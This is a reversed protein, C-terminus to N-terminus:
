PAQVLAVDSNQKGPRLRVLLRGIWRSGRWLGRLVVWLCILAGVAYVGGLGIWYWGNWSYHQEPLLNARDRVLLWGGVLVALVLALGMHLAVGAWQGRRLRPILRAFFAMNPLGLLGAFILLLLGSLLFRWAGLRRVDPELSRGYALFWLKVTVALALAFWLWPLLGLWWSRHRLAARLLVWPVVCLSASLWLWALWITGWPAFALVQVGGASNWPLDRIQRSDEEAPPQWLAGPAPQDAARDAPVAKFCHTRLHEDYVVHPLENARGAPLVVRPEGLGVCHWAAKGTSATLGYVVAGARAVVTAPQNPRVPWLDMLEGDAAPLPWKWVVTALDDRVARLGDEAFYLLGDVGKAEPDQKWVQCLVQDLPVAARGNIPAPRPKQAAAFRVAQRRLEQAGPGLLILHAGREDHYTWVVVAQRKGERNIVLPIPNSDDGTLRAMARGFAPDVPARWSGKTRGALDLVLVEALAQGPGGGQGEVTHWLVIDPRGGRELDALAVFVPDNPREAPRPVAPLSWLVAGTRGDLACLEPDKGPRLAPVLVDAVGDGNVDLFVPHVPPHRANNSRDLIVNQPYAGLEGLETRWLSKGNHGSLLVVLTRVRHAKGDFVERIGAEDDTFGGLLIQAKGDRHLDQCALVPFGGHNKLRVDATWLLGGTRGSIAQLPSNQDNEVRIPHLSLVDPIGDGDLDGLPLPFARSRAPENLQGPRDYHWLPRGDRGSIATTRLMRQDSLSEHQSLLFPYGEGTDQAAEWWRVLRRWAVPSHGRLALVEDAAGPDGRPYFPRFGPRFAVLEAIGDGDLDLPDPEAPLGRIVQALRGSGASFVYTIDNRQREVEPSGSALGMVPLRPVLLQPWGDDGTRWWRLRGFLLEFAHYNAQVAQRHWWLSHGDKGSLADVALVPVPMPDFQRTKGSQQDVSVVFVERHGDGDLDPGVVFRSVPHLAPTNREYPSVVYQMLRRQWRVAGTAGDRVELGVWRVKGEPTVGRNPVVVEPRGDGDLDALLPWELPPELDWNWEWFARVKDRWLLGRDSLRLAILELAEDGGARGERHLLIDTNGDGDLDALQPPRVPWFGLDLAPWAPRGTALDLGILRTGAVCVLVVLDKGHVRAVQPPYPLAQGRTPRFGLYRSYLGDASTRFVPTMERRDGPRLWLCSSPLAGDTTPTFWDAPLEHSWLPKGDRANLTQLWRRPPTKDKGAVALAAVLRPAAHESAPVVTPMGAVTGEGVAPEGGAPPRELFTWLIKGKAGSVAMLGAQSRGAVILDRVGDADLDLAPKVLLPRRDFADISREQPLRWDWTWGPRLDAEPGALPTDWLHRRSTGDLRSVGKDTFLIVDARGQLDVTDFAGSVKLPEWFQQHKLDVRFTEERGHDLSFWYTETLRGTGSVELLYHGEALPVAEQTPATFHPTVPRGAEDLVRVTLLSGETELRISGMYYDRYLNGVILGGVTLVAALGLALAVLAVSRRQRVVWRYGREALGPRRARIARGDLYAQLDEALARATPYRNEPEKALCKLIITELDRGVAPNLVRPAAPEASLVQLVTDLPTAARFPPRGTVLEYLVAGLSYVDSAPGMKGRDASAQEPPMYSPTGLIAGSATLGKDAELPRALGFDTVRPQGARDILVNSPKLDRHLVGQEHAYQIAAAIQAVLRAAERPPLPHDRVLDALSRGEVYDMSFFHQGDHAGVDHIAVIHPHQLVAATRAERYFRQVDTDSALQGALIMKLAVTRNLALQRAKYVVGMGGRAIESVLEYDGFRRGPGADVAAPALDPAQTPAEGDDPGLAPPEPPLTPAESSQGPVAQNGDATM